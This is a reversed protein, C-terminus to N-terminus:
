NRAIGQAAYPEDKICFVLTFESKCCFCKPCTTNAKDWEIICAVHFKHHCNWLVVAENADWFGLSCIGCKQGLVDDRSITDVMLYVTENEDMDPQNDNCSQCKKILWSLAFITGSIVATGSIIIMTVGIITGSAGSGGAFPFSFLSQPAAM